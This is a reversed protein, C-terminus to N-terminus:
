KLVDTLENIQRAQAIVIIKDGEYIRTEGTPLIFEDERVVGGIIINKKFNISKIPIDTPFGEVVKFESAEIKDSLRFLKKVRGSTDVQRSRVFRIIRNATIELPSVVSDLGMKKIMNILSQRNIKTVVKNVGLSKAYLSIMANEEDVGTLSVLADAREVKEEDFLQSDSGDGLLVSVRPLSNSLEISREEDQEVISVDVGRETLNEALYFAIKGGGIIFADKAPMKYIHLKKCFNTIETDKGIISIVDGDAFIFDGLPILTKEARKVMAFIVQTGFEKVVEVIAKGIIPNGESVNFEALSAVGGAFNEVNNASPFRLIRSIEKATEFEPNFVLDISLEEKITGVEAYYEPDRIRAVTYKVGLKKALTCCIINVEDRSTSAIFIDAKSTGADELSSKKVGNAVIGKVDYRNVINEINKPKEDIATIDHNEKVLSEIIKEGTKGVGLVIIKM